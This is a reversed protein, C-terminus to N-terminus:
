LKASIHAQFAYDPVVENSCLNACRVGLWLCRTGYKQEACSKAMTNVFERCKPTLTKDTLTLIHLIMPITALVHCGFGFIIIKM